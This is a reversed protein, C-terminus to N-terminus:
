GAATTQALGTKRAAARCRPCVKGLKGAMTDCAKCNRTDEQFQSTFCNPFLWPRTPSNWDTGIYPLLSEWRSLSRIQGVLFYRTSGAAGGVDLRDRNDLLHLTGIEVIRHADDDTTRKRVDAVTQLRNMAANEVGRMLAAVVPVAFIHLRRARHGVDHTFIVRMAVGRDVVGQDAHRLVPRHAHRQDVPLAIEARDVAVRRRRHAVGLRAQGLHRVLQQLVDVLFRDIELFGVVSRALLRPDQRRAEGVQQDITGAADGDAHRGVNRRVVQDLDAVAGDGDDVIRRDVQRRQHLDHRARVERGAADHEAAGADIVGIGAAAARDDHATPDIDLLDAVVAFGDDDGLNGILHVLRRHDLLHGFQHAVLADLADGVDAVFGVTLAVADDDLELAVGVGLDDEVLEIAKGRQLGGEAGVHHRQVAALRFHHRQDVHQLGEDAEAFFDDAAAGFVQQALRAVASVHQDAQGDRNGVDVLDDLKDAVRGIRLGRALLQHLAAPRCAVHLRQDQEDVIRTMADVLVAGVVQGLFLRAGNQFQAQLAEGREAAVFDGVFQVRDAGLDGVVEVDQRRASRM